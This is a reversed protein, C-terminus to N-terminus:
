NTAWNLGHTKPFMVKSKQVKLIYFRGKNEVNLKIENGKPVWESTLVYKVPCGFKDFGCTAIIRIFPNSNRMSKKYLKLKCAKSVKCFKNRINNMLNPTFINNSSFIEDYKFTLFFVSPFDFEGTPGSYNTKFYENIELLNKKYFYICQKTHKLM